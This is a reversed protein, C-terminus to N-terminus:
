LRWWAGRHNLSKGKPAGEKIVMEPVSSVDV